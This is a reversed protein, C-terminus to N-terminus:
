AQKGPLPAGTAGILVRNGVGQGITTTVTRSHLDATCTQVASPGSPAPLQSIQIVIATTSQTIHAAYNAECPGTGPLGGAYFDFTLHRDDSGITVTVQTPDAPATAPVTTHPWRVNPEVALVYAPATAGQLTFAWAPLARVGRDTSFPSTTLRVGTIKDPASQESPPHKGRLETLASAASRIPFGLAHTPPTPLHAALAFDGALFAMKGADTHFGPEQVEDGTLVLPRPNAGVPFNSWLQLAHQPGTGSATGPKSSRPSPAGTETGARDRSVTIVFASAAILAIVVIPAWRRRQQTSSPTGTAPTAALEDIFHSLRDHAQDDVLRDYADQLELETRTM